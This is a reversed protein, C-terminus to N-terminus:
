NLEMVAPTDAPRERTFIFSPRGDEDNWIEPLILVQVPALSPFNDDSTRIGDPIEEAETALAEDILTWEDANPSLYAFAGGSSDSLDGNFTAAATLVAQDYAAWNDEEIFNRDQASTFVEHNPDDEATPSFQVPAAIVADYYSAPASSAFDEADVEFLSPDNMDLIINIRNRIVSALANATPSQSDLKVRGNAIEAEDNIQERAEAVLIQILSQPPVTIEYTEDFTNLSNTCHVEAVGESTATLKVGSGAALTEFDPRAAISVIQPNASCDVEDNEAFTIEKDESDVFLLEDRGPAVGGLALAMKSAPEVVRDPSISSDSGGDDDHFINFPDIADMASFKCGATFVLLLLLSLHRM